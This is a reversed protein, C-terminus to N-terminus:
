VVRKFIELRGGHCDVLTNPGVVGHEMALAATVTKFTSGPEFVDSVARNRRADM